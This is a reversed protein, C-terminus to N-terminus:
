PKPELGPAAAQIAFKQRLFDAPSTQVERMWADVAGPSTIDLKPVVVKKGEKQNPDVKTEDAKLNPAQPDAQEQERRKKERAELAAQM